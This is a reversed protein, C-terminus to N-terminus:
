LEVRVGLMVSRGPQPAVDKLFSTHLRVEQDLLNRGRLYITTKSTGLGLAYGADASLLTYGGTGAELTSVRDQGDARTLELAASFPGRAGDLSLGFRTPTIRPLNGGDKLRGRVTDTFLRLNLRWPGGALLAYRTEAEAGYLEANDQVFDLLVLEGNAAFDGHHDVRDAVGDAINAGAGPPPASGDANLGRDVERLSIYDSAANYFVNFSWQWRSGHRDLGLEINNATENELNADGREFSATAHHPGCSYLEEAFPARQARTYGLRLHHQEDLNLISGLSLSVPTHDRDPNARGTCKSNGTPRAQHPDVRGGWELRGWDFPREEVLFLGASNTKVPPVFAEEGIASFDRHILQLGAVGTWGALKSHTGELRAEVERNEFKTGPVGVKEFETHRYDNFGVRARLREFGPLPRDWRGALDGRRQELDIFLTPEAPNPIGYQSNYLSVAANYYSDDGAYGLGFGGSETEVFSNVLKGKTGTGDVVPFGPIDYDGSRRVGADAHFRFAEGAQDLHLRANREDANDGYSLDALGHFGPDLKDTIRDNVVNIVGASAGSGYILTAPGRIIEIQKAQAPDITVAHDASVTSIDMSAIGNELILVRPGGQGRIVPRGVAPGFSSNSVGLQQSLTDGLTAARKRELEAGTLVSVPQVMEDAGRGAFPSAKVEIPELQTPTEDGAATNEAAQQAAAVSVALLLGLGLVIRELYKM